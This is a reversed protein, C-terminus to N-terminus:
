RRDLTGGETQRVDMMEGEDRRMGGDRRWREGEGRGGGEM